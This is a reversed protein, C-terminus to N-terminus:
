TSRFIYKLTINGSSVDKPIYRLEAKESYWDGGFVFDFSGKCENKQYVQGNLILQMEATGVISGSVSISIAQIPHQSPKSTLIITEPHSVDAIIREQDYAPACSSFFLGLVALLLFCRKM